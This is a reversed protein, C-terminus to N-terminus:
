GGSAMVASSGAGASDAASAALQQAVFAAFLLLAPELARGEATLTVKVPRKGWGRAEFLALDTGERSLVYRERLVSVPKLELERGDWRLAGGRRIERPRFQGVTTGAADTAELQRQWLGRRSFRLSRGGAEAAADRSFLGEVRVEGVGALRYLRRDHADRTLELETM